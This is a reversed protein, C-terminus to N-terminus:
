MSQLILVINEKWLLALAVQAWYWTFFILCDSQNFFKVFGILTSLIVKANFWTLIYNYYRPGTVIVLHTRYRWLHLM